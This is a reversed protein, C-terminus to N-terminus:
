AKTLIIKRAMGSVRYRGYTRLPVPTTWPGFRPIQGQGDTGDDVLARHTFYQEPWGHVFSNACTKKIRNTGDWSM